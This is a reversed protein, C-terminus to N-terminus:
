TPRRTRTTCRAPPSPPSTTARPASSPPATPTPRRPSRSWCAATTPPTPMAASSGASTARPSRPATPRPKRPGRSTTGCFTPSSAESRQGGARRAAHETARAPTSARSQRAPRERPLTPMSAMSPAVREGARRPGGALESRVRLTGADRWIPSLAPIRVASSKSAVKPDVEDRLSSTIGQGLSEALVRDKIATFAGTEQRSQLM